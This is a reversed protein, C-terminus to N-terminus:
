HGSTLGEEVDPTVGMMPWVTQRVEAMAAAAAEVQVATMPASSVACRPFLRRM